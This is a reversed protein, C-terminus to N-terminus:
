LADTTVSTKCMRENSMFFLDGGYMKRKHQRKDIAEKFVEVLRDDDYKDRPFFIPGRISFIRPHGFIRQGFTEYEKLAEDIPM